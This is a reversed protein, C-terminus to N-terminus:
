LPDLDGLHPLVGGVVVGGEVVVDADELEGSGELEVLLTKKSSFSLNAKGLRGM